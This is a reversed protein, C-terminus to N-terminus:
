AAQDFPNPFARNLPKTTPLRGLLEQVKSPETPKVPDNTAAQVTQRAKEIIAQVPETGAVSLKLGELIGLLHAIDTASAGTIQCIALEELTKRFHTTLEDPDMRRASLGADQCTQDFEAFIHRLTEILEEPFLPDEQVPTEATLPLREEGTFM